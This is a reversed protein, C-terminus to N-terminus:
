VSSEGLRYGQESPVSGTANRMLAKVGLWCLPLTIVFWLLAVVLALGTATAANQTASTARYSVVAAAVFAVALLSVINVIATLFSALLARSVRASSMSAPWALLAALWIPLVLAVSGVYIWPSMSWLDLGYVSGAALASPLVLQVIMLHWTWVLLAFILLSRWRMEGPSISRGRVLAYALWLPLMIAILTVVRTVFLGAMVLVQIGAFGAHAMAAKQAYLWGYNLAVSLVAYVVAVGVVAYWPLDARRREMLWQAYGLGVAASFVMAVWQGGLVVYMMNVASASGAVASPMHQIRYITLADLVLNVLIIALAVFYPFSSAKVKAFHM